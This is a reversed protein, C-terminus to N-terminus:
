SHMSSIKRLISIHCLKLFHLYKRQNALEKAFKRLEPTRVGIISDKDINPILKANFYRYEMDQLSLLKKQITM